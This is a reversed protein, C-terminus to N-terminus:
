RKSQSGPQPWGTPTATTRSWALDPGSSARVGAQRCRRPATGHKTRSSWCSADLSSRTSMEGVPRAEVAGALRGIVGIRPDLDGRVPVLALLGDRLSPYAQAFVPVFMRRSPAV